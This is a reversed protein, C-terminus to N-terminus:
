EPHYQSVFNLLTLLQHKPPYYSEFKFKFLKNRVTRGEKKDSFGAQVLIIDHLFIYPANSSEAPKIRSNGFPCAPHLLMKKLVAKQVCYQSLAPKNLNVLLLPRQCILLTVLRVVLKM